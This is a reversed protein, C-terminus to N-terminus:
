WSPVFPVFSVFGGAGLSAVFDPAIPPPTSANPAAIM